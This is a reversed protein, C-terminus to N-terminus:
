KMTFSLCDTCQEETPCAEHTGVSICDLSCFNKDDCHYRCQHVSCKISENAKKM